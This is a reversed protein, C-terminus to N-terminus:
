AQPMSGTLMPKQKGSKFFSPLLLAVGKGLWQGEDSGEKGPPCLGPQGDGQQRWLAEPLVSHIGASATLSEPTPLATAGRGESWPCLGGNKAELKRASVKKCLGPGQCGRARRKGM